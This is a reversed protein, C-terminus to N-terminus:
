DEAYIEMFELQDFLGLFYNYDFCYRKDPCSSCLRIVKEKRCRSLILSVNSIESKVKKIDKKTFM